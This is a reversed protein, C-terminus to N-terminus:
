LLALVPVLHTNAAAIVMGGSAALHPQLGPMWPLCFSFLAAFLYRTHWQHWHRLWLFDGWNQQTSGSLSASRGTDGGELKALVAAAQAPTNAGHPADGAPARLDKSDGAQACLSMPLSGPGRILATSGTASSSHLVPDHRAAAFGDSKHVFPCSSRRVHQFSIICVELPQGGDERKVAEQKVAAADAAATDGDAAEAAAAGVTAAAGTSGAATAAALSGGAAPEAKADAAAAVGGLEANGGLAEGVAKSDLAAAVADVQMPEAAAVAAAPKSAGASGDAAEAAELTAPQAPERSVQRARQRDRVWEAPDIQPHCALSHAKYLQHVPLVTRAVGAARQRERVWEAPDILM